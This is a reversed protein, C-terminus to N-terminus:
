GTATRYPREMACDDNRNVIIILDHTRKPASVGNAADCGTAFSRKDGFLRVASAATRTEIKNNGNQALESETSDILAVNKWKM